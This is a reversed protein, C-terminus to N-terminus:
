TQDELNAKPTSSRYWECGFQTLGRGRLAELEDCAKKHTTHCVELEGCEFCCLREYGRPCLDLNCGMYELITKWDDPITDTKHLGSELTHLLSDTLGKKIAQVDEDSILWWKKPDSM